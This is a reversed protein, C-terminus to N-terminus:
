AKLENQSTLAEIKILNEKQNNILETSKVKNTVTTKVAGIKAQQSTKKLTVDTNKKLSEDSTLKKKDLKKVKLLDNKKSTM